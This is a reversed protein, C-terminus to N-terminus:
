RGVVCQVAYITRSMGPVHHIHRGSLRIAGDVDLAIRFRCKCLEAVNKQCKCESVHHNRRCRYVGANNTTIIDIHHRTQFASIWESMSQKGLPTPPIWEIDCVDMVSQTTVSADDWLVTCVRAGSTSSSVDSVVGFPPFQCNAPLRPVESSLIVSAGCQIDIATLNTLKSLQPKSSPSDDWQVRAMDGEVDAVVGVRRHCRKNHYVRQHTVIM